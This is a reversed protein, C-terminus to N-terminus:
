RLTWEKPQRITENDVGGSLMGSLRIENCTGWNEKVRTTKINGRILSQRKVKLFM